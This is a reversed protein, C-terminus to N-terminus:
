VIEKIKSMKKDLSISVPLVFLFRIILAYLIIIISLAFSSGVKESSQLNGLILIMDISFILLSAILTYSGISKIIVKDVEYREKFGIRVKESLSDALANFVESFKFNVLIILLGAIIAVFASIDWFMMININSGESMYLSTGILFTSLVYPLLSLIRM